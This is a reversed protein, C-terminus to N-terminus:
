EIEKLAVVARLSPPLAGLAERVTLATHIDPERRIRPEARLATNETRESRLRMLAVRIALQKLWAAFTGREEYPRLAEPLGVFVDHLVDEADAQSALLRFAVTLVASAHRTYLQGLADTDGRRTSAILEVEPRSAPMALAM